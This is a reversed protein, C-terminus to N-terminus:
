PSNVGSECADSSVRAIIAYLWSFLVIVAFSFIFDFSRKVFRYGLKPQIKVTSAKRRPLYPTGERYVAGASLTESQM